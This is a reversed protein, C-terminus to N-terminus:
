ATKRVLDCYSSHFSIHIQKGYTAHVGCTCKKNSDFDIDPLTNKAIKNKSIKFNVSQGRPLTPVSLTWNADIDDTAYTHLGAFNPASVDLYELVYERTFINLDHVKARIGNRNILIDGIQFKAM